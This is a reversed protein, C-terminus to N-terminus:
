WVIGVLGEIQSFNILEGMEFNDAVMREVGGLKELLVKGDEMKAFTKPTTKM